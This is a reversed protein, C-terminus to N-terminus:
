GLATLRRSRSEVPVADACNGRWRLREPLVSFRHEPLRGPVTHCGARPLRRHDRSAYFCRSTSLVNDVRAKRGRPHRRCGVTVRARPNLRDARLGVGPLLSLDSGWAHRATKSPM